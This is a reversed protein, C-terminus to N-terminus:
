IIEANNIIKSSNFCMFKIDRYDKSVLMENITETREPTAKSNGRTEVNRM